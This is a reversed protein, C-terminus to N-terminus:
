DMNSSKTGASVSEAAQEHASTKPLTFFFTTGEGFKSTLWVLGGYLEVIKKVLTLGVGTSEFQDRAQLTQFIKFIKEFHQEEIGPGNDSVSFRWFGDEETCGIKIFGEPKDMYKIANSLLNQFVQQIRTAESVVVPLQNEISININSPPAISDIIDPLLKNLDIQIHEETIRGVRSYQLVGDILNHMRNVRNMLLKIQEKGDDDFKDSYDAALWDTLARIARLPAKLDHSIIYAFNKLEENVSELEKLLQAQEQQAKKRETFDRAIFLLFEHSNQKIFGVNVEVPFTTGDKRKHVGEFIMNGKQKVENVHATWADEDPITQEIESLTTNIVNERTLGLTECAKENVDIIRGWQPEAIFVADNSRDILNRFMKLKDAATKQEAILGLREAFANLLDREQDSFITEDQEPCDGAFYVEITGIKEGTLQINSVQSIETKRFNDTQYQVGDYTIRVCTKKTNQYAYRILTTANQFINSLPTNPQELLKSLGYLCSMHKVNVKLKDELKAQDTADRITVQILTKGDLNTCTFLIKAPFEKLDARKCKWDFSITGKELVTQIIQKEKIDSQAGDPQIKPSFDALKKGSCESQNKCGLLQIAALNASVFGKEPRLLIIADSSNEFLQRYMQGSAELLRHTQEAKSIANSLPRVILRYILVVTILALMVVSVIIDIISGSSVAYFLSSLVAQCLFIVMLTELYLQITTRRNNFKKRGPSKAPLGVQQMLNDNTIDSNAM